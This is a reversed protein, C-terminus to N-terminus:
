AGSYDPLSGMGDRRNSAAELQRAAADFLGDGSGSKGNKGNNGGNGYGKFKDSNLVWTKWADQWSPFKNQRTRHHAIFHELQHALEAPTWREIIKRSKADKGFEAPQWDESIERATDKKNSSPERSPETDRKQSQKVDSVSSNRIQSQETNPVTETTARYVKIQKTTGARQETDVLLGADELKQINAIITKRNQGTIEALHKISPFIHGTKYNACECLAILTFKVASPKVDQKFAWALAESSM